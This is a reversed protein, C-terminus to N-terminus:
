KMVRPSVREWEHTATNRAFFPVFFGDYDGVPPESSSSTRYAHYVSADYTIRVVDLGIVREEEDFIFSVEDVVYDTNDDCVTIFFTGQRRLKQWANPTFGAPLHQDQVQIVKLEGNEVLAVHDLPELKTKFPFIGVELYPSENYIFNEALQSITWLYMHFHNPGKRTIINMGNFHADSEPDDGNPFFPIKMCQPIDQTLVVRRRGRRVPPMTHEAPFDREPM